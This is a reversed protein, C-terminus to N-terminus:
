GGEMGSSNNVYHSSSYPRAQFFEPEVGVVLTLTGVNGASKTSTEFVQTM